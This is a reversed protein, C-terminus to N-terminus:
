VYGPLLLVSLYKYHFLDSIQLYIDTTKSDIELLQDFELIAAEYDGSNLYKIGLDLMDQTKSKGACGSILVICLLVFIYKKM